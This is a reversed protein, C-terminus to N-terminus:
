ILNCKFCHHQTTNVNNGGAFSNQPLIINKCRDTMRNVDRGLPSWTCGESGPVGGGRLLAHQSIRAVLPRYADYQFANKNFRTRYLITCVDVGKPLFCSCFFSWFSFPHLYKKQATVCIQPPSSKYMVLLSHFPLIRPAYWIAANIDRSKKGFHWKPHMESANRVSKRVKDSICGLHM